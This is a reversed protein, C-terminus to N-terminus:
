SYYVMVLRGLRVEDGNNLLHRQGKPVRERNVFTFNMSGLDEIFLRGEAYFIRAHRRSVGAIDGGVVNTDVDPYYRSDPDARGIMLEPKGPPFNLTASSGAVVFRGSVQPGWYPAQPTGAPQAGGAPMGSGWPGAFAGGPQGGAQPSQPVVADWWGGPAGVPPQGGAPAPPPEGKGQEPGAGAPSNPPNLPQPPPPPVVMIPPLQMGCNNCYVEGPLNQAGCSPCTGAAVAPGPSSAPFPEGCVDCFAAADDVNNHCQSCIKAM